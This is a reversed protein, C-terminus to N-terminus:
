YASAHQLMLQHQSTHGLFTFQNGAYCALAAGIGATVRYDFLREGSEADYVSIVESQSKGDPGEVMFPIALRNGTASYQMIAGESATKAPSSLHMTRVVSGDPGIVYVVPTGFHRMLYINGDSGPDDDGLAVEDPMKVTATKFAADTPKPPKVDDPLTVDKIVHGAPNLVETIPVSMAPENKYIKVEKTGAVLVAGSAFLGIQFPAVDGLRITSDSDVTGDSNFEVLTGEGPKPGWLGLVVTGDSGVTFDNISANEFGPVQALSFTQRSEGDASIREVPAEFPNAPQYFRLYINGAADCRLQEGLAASPLSPVAVTGEVRLTMQPVPATATKTAVQQAPMSNMAFLLLGACASARGLLKKM